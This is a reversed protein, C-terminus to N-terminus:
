RNVKQRGKSKLEKAKGEVWMQENGILRGVTGKATGVM